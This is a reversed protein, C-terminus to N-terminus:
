AARRKITRLKREVKAAMDKSMKNQKARTMAEQMATPMPGDAAQPTAAEAQKVMADGTMVGEHFSAGDDNGATRAQEKLNAIDAEILLLEGAIAAPEGTWTNAVWIATQEAKAIAKTISISPNMDSSTFKGLEAIFGLMLEQRQQTRTAAKKERDIRVEEVDMKRIRAIIADTEDSGKVPRVTAIKDVALIIAEEDMQKEQDCAANWDHFEDILKGLVKRDATRKGVIREFEQFARALATWAGLQGLANKFYQSNFDALDAAYVNGKYVPVHEAREGQTKIHEPYDHRVLDREGAPLTITNPAILNAISKRLNHFFSKM